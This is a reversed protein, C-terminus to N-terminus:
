RVLGSFTDKWRLVPTGDAKFEIPLWIHRSLALSRPNWMDAMFIFKGEGLNLIYTGQTGFSKDAKWTVPRVGQRTPVEMTPGEGEFPNGVQTWPGMISEAWFMRGM